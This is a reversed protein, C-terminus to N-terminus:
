IEFNNFYISFYRLFGNRSTSSLPPQWTSPHPQISTPLDSINPPSPYRGHVVSESMLPSIDMDKPLRMYSTDDPQEQRRRSPVLNLCELMGALDEVRHAYCKALETFNLVEEKYADDISNNAQCSEDYKKVGQEISEFKEPPGFASSPISVDSVSSVLLNDISEQTMCLLRNIYENLRPNKTRAGVQALLNSLLAQHEPSLNSPLSRYSTSSSTGENNTNSVRSMNKSNVEQTSTQVDKDSIKVKVPSKSKKTKNRDSVRVVVKVGEYSLSSRLTDQQSSTESCTSISDKTPPSDREFSVEVPDERSRMREPSGNESSCKGTMDELSSEELLNETCACDISCSCQKTFPLKQRAQRKSKKPETIISDKEETIRKQGVPSSKVKKGSIHQPSGQPTQNDSREACHIDPSRRTQEDNRNKREEYSRRREEQISENLISCWRSQSDFSHNVDSDKKEKNKESMWIPIDEEKLDPVGFRSELQRQKRAREEKLKCILDELLEETGEKCATPEFQLNPPFDERKTVHGQPEEQSTCSYEKEDPISEKSVTATQSEDNDLLICPNNKLM